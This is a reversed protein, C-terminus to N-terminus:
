RGGKFVYILWNVLVYVGVVLVCLGLLILCVVDFLDVSIFM